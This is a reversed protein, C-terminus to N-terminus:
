SESKWCLCMGLQTRKLDVGVKLICNRTNDEDALMTKKVISRSQQTCLSFGFAGHPLMAILTSFSVDTRFHSM